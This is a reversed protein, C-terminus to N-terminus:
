ASIGCWEAHESYAAHLEELAAGLGYCSDTASPPPEKMLYQLYEAEQTTLTRDYLALAAVEAGSLDAGGSGSYGGGVSVELPEFNAFHLPSNPYPQSVTAGASTSISITPPSSGALLM